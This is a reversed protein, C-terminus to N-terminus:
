VNKLLITLVTQFIPSSFSFSIINTKKSDIQETM